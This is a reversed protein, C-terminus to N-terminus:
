HRRYVRGGPTEFGSIRGDAGRRFTLLFREESARTDSAEFTDYSWHALNFTAGPQM